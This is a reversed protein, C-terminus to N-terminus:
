PFSVENGMERMKMEKEQEALFMEDASLLAFPVGIFLASVTIAYAGKAGIWFGSRTYRSVGNYIDIFRRRTTPPVMDKLAIIRDTFTERSEIDDDAEDGSISSDACTILELESM